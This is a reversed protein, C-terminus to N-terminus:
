DEEHGGAGERDSAGGAERERPGPDVLDALHAVRVVRARLDVEEVYPERVPVELEGEARAIVIAASAPHVAIRAVVGIRAGDAEVDLGVLDALYVEDDDLAPLDARAISAVFGELGEAATRDDIGDLRLFALERSRRFQAVRLARPAGDKQPAGRQPAGKQPAVRVELGRWDLTSEPHDLVLKLEGRVGHAHLIGMRVWAEASSGTSM